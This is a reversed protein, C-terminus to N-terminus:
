RDRREIIQGSNVLDLCRDGFNWCQCVQHKGAEAVEVKLKWWAEFKM